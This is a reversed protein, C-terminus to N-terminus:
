PLVPLCSRARAKREERRALVVMSSRPPAVLFFPLFLLNLSGLLLGASAICSIFILLTHLIQQYISDAGYVLRGILWSVRALTLNSLCWLISSFADVTSTDVPPEM